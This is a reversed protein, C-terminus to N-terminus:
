MRGFQGWHSASVFSEGPGVVNKRIVRASLAIWARLGREGSRGAVVVSVSVSVLSMPQRSRNGCAEPKPHCQNSCPQSERPLLWAVAAVQSWNRGPARCTFCGLVVVAFSVIPPEDLLLSSPGRPHEVSIILSPQECGLPLTRTSPTPSFRSGVVWRPPKRPRAIRYRSWAGSVTMDVQEAVENWSLGRDRLELIHQTSARRASPGGRRTTVGASRLQDSVVCWHGGL